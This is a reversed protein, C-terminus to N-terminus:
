ITYAHVDAMPGTYVCLASDCVSRELFQASPASGTYYGGRRDKERDWRDRRNYYDKERDRDRERKREPSQSRSLRQAHREDSRHRFQSDQPVLGIRSPHVVAM